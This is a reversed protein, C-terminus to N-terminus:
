GWGAWGGREVAGLVEGRLYADVTVVQGQGVCQQVAAVDVDVGLGIREAPARLLGHGWGQGGVVGEEIVDREGGEGRGGEEGVGRPTERSMLRRGTHTSASLALSRHGEEEEEKSEGSMLWTRLYSQVRSLSLGSVSASPLTHPSTSFLFSSRSSSSSFSSTSSFSSHASPNAASSGPSGVDMRSGQRFGRTFWAGENQTSAGAASTPHVLPLLLSRNLLPAFALYRSPSPPLLNPLLLSRNRLPAFALHRSPTFFSPIKLRRLVLYLHPLLLSQNCLPSISLPKSSPLFAPLSPPQHSSPPLSPIVPPHLPFFPCRPNYPPPLHLPSPPSFLSACIPSLSHTTPDTRCVPPLHSPTLHSLLLSLHPPLTSTPSLPPSSSNIRNLVGGGPEHPSTPPAIPPAEHPPPRTRVLPILLKM